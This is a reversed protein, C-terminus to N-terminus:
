SLASLLTHLRQEYTHDAHARVAARDGMLRAEDPHDLMWRIKDVLEDFARFTAVEKEAEFLDDLDPRYETLVAAGCGAAEFLRCNVSVLEGLQLNNLLLGAARFVRAKEERAVYKGTYCPELLESRLWRAWPPGYIRLPIGARVLRECLRLRVAYMNGAVVVTPEIAVASPRHWSTNCAEPLYIMNVALLSQCRRVLESDKFCILDYDALFMWQRGLNGVPDGFWLALRTGNRRIRQIAEPVLSAELSIIVDYRVRTARAVTRRQLFLASSPSGQAVQTVVKGFRSTDISYTSGLADTEHGMRRLADTVNDAFSDPFDPGIVGIRM